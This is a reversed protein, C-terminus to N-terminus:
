VKKSASPVKISFLEMPQVMNGTIVMSNIDDYKTDALNKYAFVTSYDPSIIIPMLNQDIKQIVEKNKEIIIKQSMTEFQWDKINHPATNAKNSNELIVLQNEKITCGSLSFTLCLIIIVLNIMKVM